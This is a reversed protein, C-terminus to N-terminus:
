VMEGIEVENDEGLLYIDIENLIEDPAEGNSEVKFEEDTSSMYLNFLIFGVIIISIVVIISVIKKIM